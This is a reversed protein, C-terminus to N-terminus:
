ICLGKAEALGLAVLQGRPKLGDGAVSAEGYSPVYQGVHERSQLRAHPVCCQLHQTGTLGVAQGVGKHTLQSAPLDIKHPFTEQM